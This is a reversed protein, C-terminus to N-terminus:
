GIQYRNHLSEFLKEIVENAKDQNMIGINDSKSHMEHEKDTDKSLPFNIAIALQIKWADSKQLNNNIDKM